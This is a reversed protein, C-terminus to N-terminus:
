RGICADSTTALPSKNRSGGPCGAHRKVEQGLSIFMM